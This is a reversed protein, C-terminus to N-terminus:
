AQQFDHAQRIPGPSHERGARDEGFPPLRVHVGPYCFHFAPVRECCFLRLLERGMGNTMRCEDNPSGRWGHM